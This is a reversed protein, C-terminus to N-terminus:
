NWQYQMISSKEQWKKQIGKNKIELIIDSIFMRFLLIADNKDNFGMVRLSNYILDKSDGISIREEFFRKVLTRQSYQKLDSCLM